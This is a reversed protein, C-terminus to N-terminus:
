TVVMYEYLIYITYRTVSTQVPRYIPRQQRQEEHREEHHSSSVTEHVTPRYIPQQVKNETRQEENTTSTSVTRSPVYILPRQAANQTVRHEETHSSSSSLVPTPIPVPVHNTTRVHNSREELERLYSNDLTVRPRYNPVVESHYYRDNTERHQTRAGGSNIIIPRATASERREEREEKEYHYSQQPLQVVIPPPSNRSEKKEVLSSSSHHYSQSPRVVIPQQVGHTQRNEQFQNQKFYSGGFVPVTAGNQQMVHSEHDRRSQLQNQLNFTPPNGGITCNEENVNHVHWNRDLVPQLISQHQQQQQSQSSFQKSSSSTQSQTQFQQQVQRELEALKEAVRHEYWQPQNVQVQTLKGSQLDTVIQNTMDIAISDLEKQTRGSAGPQLECKTTCRQYFREGGIGGAGATTLATNFQERLKEAVGHVRDNNQRVWDDFDSELRLRHDNFNGSFLSFNYHIIQKCCDVYMGNPFQKQM